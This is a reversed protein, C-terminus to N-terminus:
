GYKELTSHWEDLLTTPQLSEIGSLGIKIPLEITKDDTWQTYQGPYKSRTRNALMEHLGKNSLLYNINNAPKHQM